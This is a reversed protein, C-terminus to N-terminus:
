PHWYFTTLALLLLFVALHALAPFYVWRELHLGGILGRLPLWLVLCLLFRPVISSFYIGLFEFEPIM